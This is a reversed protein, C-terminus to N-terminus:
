MKPRGGAGGNTTASTFGVFRVKVPTNCCALVRSTNCYGSNTVLGSSTVWTGSYSTTADSWSNCTSGVYLYRGSGPMGTNSTGTGDATSPDLWAGTAPIDTTANSQVYEAAHCLHSGAFATSCAAHASHRGSGISGTYTTTTFGAFTGLEESYAGSGAPGPPGQPGPAGKAGAMGAAGAPGTAGAAGPPGAVGQEGRAGATGAPGAPGMPGMSGMAGTAGTAGSPGVPGQVGTPGAPGTAGVAGPEGKDGKLGTQGMPGPEGKDGKEGRTGASGPEGGTPQNCGAGTASVLVTALLWPAVVAKHM